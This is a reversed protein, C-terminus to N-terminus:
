FFFGAVLEDQGGSLYKSDKEGGLISRREGGVTSRRKRGMTRSRERELISRREGRVMNRRERRGLHEEERRGRHEKERKGQSEEQRELSSAHEHTTEKRVESHSFCASTLCPLLSPLCPGKVSIVKLGECLSVWIYFGVSTNTRSCFAFPLPLLGKGVDM